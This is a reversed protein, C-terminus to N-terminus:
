RILINIKPIASMKVYSTACLCALFVFLFPWVWLLLTKRGIRKSGFVALIQCAWTFMGLGAAIGTQTTADTIGVSEFVIVDLSILKIPLQLM